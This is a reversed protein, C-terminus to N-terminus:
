RAPPEIRTVLHLPRLGTLDVVVVAVKCRAILPAM